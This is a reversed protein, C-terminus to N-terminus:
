KRDRFARIVFLGIVLLWGAASLMSGIAFQRPRYTLAISHEGAPLYVGRLILNARLIPLHKTTCNGAILEAQWGESFSDGIVLLGPRSLRVRLEARQPEWCIIECHEANRETAQSDSSAGSHKAATSSEIGPLPQPSEVVVVRRFNRLEGGAMLVERTRRQIELPSPDDLPDLRIAEHVIWARPYARDNKWLASNPPIAHGDAPLIRETDPYEFGAPLLLFRAGLLDLVERAPERVRDPRRPGVRRAERMFAQHDQSLCSATSDVVSITGSLPYRPCLTHRDWVLAESGRDVSSTKPWSAPWWRDRAARFVRFPQATGSDSVASRITQEYVPQRIFDEDATTLIWRHGAVTLEIATVLLLLSVVIRRRPGRIWVTLIWLVAALVVAHLFSGRLESLGANGDLPGFVSDSPVDALWGDWQSALIWTLVFGIMSIAAIGVLSWRLWTGRPSVSSRVATAGTDDERGRHTQRLSPSTKVAGNSSNGALRDLGRAALLSCALQAVVLLKAPFRFYGYAPLVVAM